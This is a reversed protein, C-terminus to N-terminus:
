GSILDCYFYCNLHKHSPLYAGCSNRLFRELESKTSFKASFTRAPMLYSNHEEIQVNKNM